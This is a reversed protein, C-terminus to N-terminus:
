PRVGMAILLTRITHEAPDHVELPPVVGLDPVKPSFGAPLELDLPSTISDERRLSPSPLLTRTPM